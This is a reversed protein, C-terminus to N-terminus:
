VAFMTLEMMMTLCLCSQLWKKHHRYQLFILVSRFLFTFNCGFITWSQIRCIRVFRDNKGHWMSFPINSPHQATEWCHFDYFNVLSLCLEIKILMLMKRWIKYTLILKNSLASTQPIQILIKNITRFNSSNITIIKWLHLLFALKLWGLNTLTLYDKCNIWKVHAVKTEHYYCCSTHIVLSCLLACM